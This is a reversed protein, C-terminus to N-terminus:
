ESQIFHGHDALAATAADLKDERVFIYDTDYTSVAFISIEADALPSALSVLVGTLSFALPGQAKFCRWGPEHLVNVPVLRQPCVISLEDSTRTISLFPGKAWPPLSERPDLRCVAFTEALVELTLTKMDHITQAAPSEDLPPAVRNSTLEFRHSRTCPLCPSQNGVPIPRVVVQVVHRIM